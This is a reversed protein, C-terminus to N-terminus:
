EDQFFLYDTIINSFTRNVLGEYGTGQYRGTKTPTQDADSDKYSRNAM